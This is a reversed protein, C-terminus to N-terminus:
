PNKHFKTKVAPLIDVPGSSPRMRGLRTATTIKNNQRIASSTEIYKYLLPTESSLTGNSASIALCQAFLDLLSSFHM